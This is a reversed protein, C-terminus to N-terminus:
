APHFDTSLTYDKWRETEKTILDMKHYAIEYADKGLFLHVAPNEEQAMKILADAAKQPDGPQNGNIRNLHVAESERASTYADISKKPRQASDKSLFETRFYGPYVLTTQVGFPRMEEALAETFGAMAFKTSCYIGFGPFNGVYGGISAINFIHGSRQNRLHKAANRIVNLAGFVNVNFNEKVEEDSLEELTGIQSYGANNVVVDIQGFHDVTADIAKAVDSNSTLDLEIPLFDESAGVTEELSQRKRSTAAVRYNNALLEKVLALGLGKSAGTVFWVKKTGM